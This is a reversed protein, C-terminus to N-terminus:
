AVEYGLRLNDPNIPKILNYGVLIKIADRISRSGCQFEAALERGSPLPMGPAMPEVHKHYIDKAVRDALMSGFKIEKPQEPLEPGTPEDLEPFTDPQMIEAKVKEASPEFKKLKPKSKPALHENLMARVEPEPIGTVASIDPVDLGGGSQSFLKGVLRIVKKKQVQTHYYRVLALLEKEDKNLAM